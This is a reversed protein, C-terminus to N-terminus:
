WLWMGVTGVILTRTKPVWADSIIGFFLAGINQAIESVIPVLLFRFYNSTTM